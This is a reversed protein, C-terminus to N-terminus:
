ADSNRRPRSGQRTPTRRRTTPSRDAHHEYDARCGTGRQLVPGSLACGCWRRDKPNNAPAFGIMWDDTGPSGDPNTTQATGTEAVCHGTRVEEIAGEASPASSHPYDGTGPGASDGLSQTPDHEILMSVSVGVSRSARCSTSVSLGHSRSPSGPVHIGQQGSPQQHSSPTARRERTISRM